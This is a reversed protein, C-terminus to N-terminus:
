FFLTRSNAVQIKALVNFLGWEAFNSGVLRRSFITVRRLGIAGGGGKEVETM